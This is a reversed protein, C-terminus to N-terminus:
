EEKGGLDITMGKIALSYHVMDSTLWWRNTENGGYIYDTMNDAAEFVFLIMELKEM